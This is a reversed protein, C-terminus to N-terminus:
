DIKRKQFWIGELSLNISLLHYNEKILGNTIQGKSGYTYGINIMSNTYPDLPIGIGLNLTSNKIRQNNVELNGDNISFGARYELNNFFKSVKKEAAYQLGMAFLNQNVYTGLQDTQNTDDWFSKKYDVNLSFDKKFTTSLGFGLELPLNFDDISSESNETLDTTSDTTNLTITSSKTGNLSTPLEVTGGISLNKLADYQFGAGVRVGSYYNEDEIIFTNSPLYDTETQTIKGFLASGTIGLRFKNTLAYGYNLKLNNIGGNGEIDTVFISSSTGEINTEIDSISYGVSTLPILTIGFGSRKTLPFALAINSFNATINSNQRSGDELFNTQAKFGFDYLFSNLLVNGFSAPNSNNIFSNSPMAIGLGGLGNVKGTSTENTLGLGYLSYPSSSLANSQARTLTTFVLLFLSLIIYKNIM